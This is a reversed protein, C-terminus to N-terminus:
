SKAFELKHPNECFAPLVNILPCSLSQFDAPFDPSTISTFNSNTLPFPTRPTELFLSNRPFIQSSISGGTYGTTSSYPEILLHVIM